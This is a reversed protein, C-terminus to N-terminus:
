VCEKVVLPMGDSFLFLKRLDAKTDSALLRKFFVGYAAIHSFIGSLGMSTFRLLIAAVSLFVLKRIYAQDVAPGALELMVLYILAFSVLGSVTEIVSIVCSAILKNRQRGALGSVMKLEEIM